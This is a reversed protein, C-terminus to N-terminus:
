RCGDVRRGGVADCTRPSLQSCVDYATVCPQPREGCSAAWTDGSGMVGVHCDDPDLSCAHTAKKICVQSTTRTMVQIDSHEKVTADTIADFARRVEDTSQIRTRAEASPYSAMYVFWKEGTTAPPGNKNYAVTFPGDLGAPNPYIAFRYTKADNKRLADLYARAAAPDKESVANPGSIPFVLLGLELVQDGSQALTRLDFSSDLPKVFVLTMDLTRLWREAAPTPFLMNAMDQWRQQNEWWTMGTWTGAGTNEPRGWISRWEREVLPGPQASLMAIFESRWKFMELKDSHTRRLAIELMPGAPYGGVGDKVDRWDAPLQSAGEASSATQGFAPDGVLSGLLLYIGVACASAMKSIGPRSYNKRMLVDVM